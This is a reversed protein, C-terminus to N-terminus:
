QEEELVLKAARLGSMYAGHTTGAYNFLTHEGRMAKEAARQVVKVWLDVNDAWQKYQPPFTEMGKSWLVVTTPDSMSAPREGLIEFTLSRM